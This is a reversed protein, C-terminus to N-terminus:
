KCPPGHHDDLGMCQLHNLMHKRSFTGAGLNIKQHSICLVTVGQGNLNAAYKMFLAFRLCKRGSHEDTYDM